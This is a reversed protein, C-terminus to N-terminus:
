GQIDTRETASVKRLSLVLLGEASSVLTERPKRENKSILGFLLDGMVATIKRCKMQTCPDMENFRGKFEIRISLYKKSTNIVSTVINENYLFVVDSVM